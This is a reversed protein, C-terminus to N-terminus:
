LGLWSKLSQALQETDNEGLRGLHRRVEGTKLVYMGRKIASPCNLGAGKWDDLLFEGPLLRIVQSTMPVVFIDMSPHPASVVVAPRPKWGTGDTFPYKVLLVDNRTWSPM